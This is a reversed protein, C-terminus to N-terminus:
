LINRQNSQIMVDFLQNVATAFKPDIHAIEDSSFAQTTMEYVQVKFGHVPPLLMALGQLFSSMESKMVSKPGQTSNLLLISYFRFRLAYWHVKSLRYTQLFTEAQSIWDLSSEVTFMVRVGDDQPFYLENSPFKGLVSLTEFASEMAKSDIDEPVALIAVEQPHDPNLCRECKCEFGFRQLLVSQRMVTPFCCMEHIYSITIQQNAKIETAAVLFSDLVTANPACSHNVFNFSLCLSFRRVDGPQGPVPECFADSQVVALAQRWLRMSVNSPRDGYEREYSLETQGDTRRLPLLFRKKIDDNCVMQQVLDKQSLKQLRTAESTDSCIRYIVRSTLVEDSPQTVIIQGTDFPTSTYVARGCTPHARLQLSPNNILGQPISFCEHQHRPWDVVQEAQTSYSVLKCRSCRKKSQPAASTQSVVASSSVQM